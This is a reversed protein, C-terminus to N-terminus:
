FVFMYACFSQEERLINRYFGRNRKLGAAGRREMPLRDRRAPLSRAMLPKGGDVREKQDVAKM